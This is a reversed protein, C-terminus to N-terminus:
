PKELCLPVESIEFSVAIVADRVRQWKKFLPEYGNDPQEIARRFSRLSDHASRLRTERVALSDEIEALQRNLATLTADPAGDGDARVVDRTLEGLRQGAADRFAQRSASREGILKELLECLASHNERTWDSQVMDTWPRCEGLRALLAQAATADTHSKLARDLQPTAPNSAFSELMSEAEAQRKQLAAITVPRATIAAALTAELAEIKALTNM